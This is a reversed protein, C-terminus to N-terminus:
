AALGRAAITTLLEREAAEYQQALRWEHQDIRSVIADELLEHLRDPPIADLEVARDGWRAAEPDKKKAPRTPLQWEEIQEETVALHEFEVPETGYDAFFARIARAAREGGADYDFMTIITTDIGYKAAENAEDVAGRLFTASSVGRSIMLSVDWADTVGSVLSALADKEVWVEIRIGQSRWLNRRYTRATAQLADEAEDWTLPKRQWRTSDAIFSWPLTGEHRLKLVQQQVRRYGRTEDKEVVGRSVLAYFAGRVTMVKYDVTLGLIADRLAITEAALPRGRSNSASAGHIALTPPRKTALAEFSTM